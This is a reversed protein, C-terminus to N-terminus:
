KMGIQMYERDQRYVNYNVQYHMQVKMTNHIGNMVQQYLNESLKKHLHVCESSNHFFRQTTKM